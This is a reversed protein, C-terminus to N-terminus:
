VPPVSTEHVGDQEAYRAIREALKQQQAAIMGAM